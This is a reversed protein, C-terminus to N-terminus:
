GETTVDRFSKLRDLLQAGETIAVSSDCKCLLYLCNILEECTFYASRYGAADASKEKEGQHEM